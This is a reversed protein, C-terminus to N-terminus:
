NARVRIRFSEAQTLDALVDLIKGSSALKADLENVVCNDNNNPTRGFAYSVWAKAYEQSAKPTNAIEEMLQLPSSIEINRDGGFPVTATTVSADIPGGFRTDV